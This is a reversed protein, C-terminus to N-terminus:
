VVGQLYQQRQPEPFREIAYRLMTRPMRKYYMRLFEEETVLSRKGIERLMWGVAKHILDEKDQLLLGAIRLAEAYSGRKIFFFTALIAIRREWMNASTAFMSLPRKDREWLHAGVLYPASIDVLDWNNIFRVKQVYFDHVITKEAHNGKAYQNMMLLLALFREEHIPSALLKGTETLPVLAYEKALKRLEPVQIGLFRDGEAYECPGTKFFRQLVEAKKPNALERLRARIVQSIM